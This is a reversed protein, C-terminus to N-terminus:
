LGLAQRELDRVRGWAILAETHNAKKYKDHWARWEKLADETTRRRLDEEGKPVDQEGDEYAPGSTNARFAYAFRRVETILHDLRDLGDIVLHASEATNQRTMRNEIMQRLDHADGYLTHMESLWYEHLRHVDEQDYTALLRSLAIIKRAQAEYHTSFDEHELALKEIIPIAAAASQRRQERLQRYVPTGAIIAAGITFTGALLTQYERVWGLSVLQEVWLILGDNCARDFLDFCGTRRYWFVVFLLAWLAVVVGGCVALVRLGNKM